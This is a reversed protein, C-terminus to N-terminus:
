LVLHIHQANMIYWLYEHKCWKNVKHFLAVVPLITRFNANSWQRNESLWPSSFNQLPFWLICRHWRWFGLLNSFRVGTQQMNDESYIIETLVPLIKAFVFFLGLQGTVFRTTEANHTQNLIQVDPSWASSCLEVCLEQLVRVCVYLDPKVSMRHKERLLPGLSHYVAKFLLLFYSLSSVAIYNCICKGPWPLKAESQYYSLMLLLAGDFIILWGYCTALNPCAHPPCQCHSGDECLCWTSSLVDHIHIRM